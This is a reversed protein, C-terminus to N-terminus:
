EAEGSGFVETISHIERFTGTTGSIGSREGRLNVEFVRGTQASSRLEGFHDATRYNGDIFSDGIEFTERPCEILGEGTGCVSGDSDEIVTAYVRYINRTENSAFYTALVQIKATSFHFPNVILNDSLQAGCGRIVVAGVVCLVFLIVGAMIVEVLSFGNRKYM